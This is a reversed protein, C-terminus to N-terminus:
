PTGKGGTVADVAAKFPATVDVAKAATIVILVVAAAVLIAGIYELSGQGSDRGAEISKIVRIRLAVLKETM